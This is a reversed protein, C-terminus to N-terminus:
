PKSQANWPDKEVLVSTSYSRGNVSLTVRYTGPKALPGQPVQRPSEEDDGGGRRTGGDAPINGQLNWQVRNMGADGTGVIDRFSKGTPDTITIKVPSTTASKLNYSIATGPPANEGRFQKAGVLSRALRMDKNYTVGARPRFLHVDDELPSSTKSALTVGGVAPALQQLPTIDDMVLASRGHTGIVLDGDRPHVIIEDIRVTSLGTM